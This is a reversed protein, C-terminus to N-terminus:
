ISVKSSNLRTLLLNAVDERYCKALLRGKADFIETDVLSLPFVITIESPDSLDSSVVDNCLDRKGCIECTDLSKVLSAPWKNRIRCEACYFM